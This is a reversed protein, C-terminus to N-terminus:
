RSIYEMTSERSVFQPKITITKAFYKGLEGRENLEIQEKLIDIASTSIEQNPHINATLKPSIIPEYETGDFGDFSAVSVDQPVKLGKEKLAKLVGIATLHNAAFIATPPNKLNMLKLTNNYGGKVTFDGERILEEDVLINHKNFAKLAGEWRKKGNALYLLGNIVGIRRHGLKILHEVANFSGFSNDAIVCSININSSYRVAFVVPVNGILQEFYDFEKGVPTVIIGSVREEQLVKLCEKERETDENTHCLIVNYGMKRAEEEVSLTFSSFFPSKIHPIMLGIINRRNTVLSRAVASPKYNLQNVAQEIKVRSREGLYGSNNLYRSVTSTSVGALKAIDKISVM